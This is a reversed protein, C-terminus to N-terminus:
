ELAPSFRPSDTPVVLIAAGPLVGMARAMVAGPLRWHHWPGIIATTRPGQLEFNIRDLILQCARRCGVGRLPLLDDAM